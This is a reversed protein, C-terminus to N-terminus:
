TTIFDRIESNPHLRMLERVFYAFTANTRAPQLIWDHAERALDPDIDRIEGASEALLQLKAARELQVAVVCAEEVSRAAVVLGHHALLAARRNGLIQAILVGEENGVPVGPWESLFAVEEFLMCSDMHAIRLPRGLMSLAAIHLPHTHVICNVDPRLQYIWSHFRNAPNPMGQGEVVSLNADVKLLNEPSIEDFGFGLAQTWYLDPENARATIQGALASDHGKSYLIRCTLALRVPLPRQLGQLHIGMQMRGKEMLDQKGAEAIAIEGQWSM